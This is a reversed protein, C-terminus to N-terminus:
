TRPEEVTWGNARLLEAARQIAPPVYDGGMSWLSASYEVRGAKLANQMLGWIKRSDLGCIEVLESTTVPQHAEIARLVTAVKTGKPAEVPPEVATPEPRSPRRPLRLLIDWPTATTM